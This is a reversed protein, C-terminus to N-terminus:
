YALYTMTIAKTAQNYDVTAGLSEAVFRVPLLMRGAVILPVVKANTDIPTDLWNVVATAKGITLTLSSMGGTITATHATADWTVTVGFSEAIARLPVLTRNGAGLLPAADLTVTTASGDRPAVTMQTKNLTLTLTVDISPTMAAARRFLFLKNDDRMWAYATANSVTGVTMCWSWINQAAALGTFAPVWHDGNDDSRVIGGPAVAYLTHNGKEDVALYLLVLVGSLSGKSIETWHSGQDDSRFISDIGPPHSTGVYITAPKVPDVIIQAVYTDTLGSTSLRKWHAGRDVSRLVGGQDGAYITTPTTPDIAMTDMTDATDASIATWHAGSDTSRGFLDEQTSLTEAYLIAPTSPDVVIDYINKGQLSGSCNTWHAGQDTSRFIDKDTKAYM